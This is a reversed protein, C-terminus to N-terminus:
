ARRQFLGGVLSFQLGQVFYSFYGAPSESYSVFDCPTYLSASVQLLSRRPPSNGIQPFVSLSRAEHLPLDFAVLVRISFMSMKGTLPGLSLYGTLWSQGGYVSSSTM